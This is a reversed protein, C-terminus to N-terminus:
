GHTSRRNERGLAGSYGRLREVEEPALYRFQGVPLNGLRLSGIGIRKLKAVPHGVASFM